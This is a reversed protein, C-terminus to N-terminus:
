ADRWLSAPWIAVHHQHSSRNTRKPWQYETCPSSCREWGGTIGANSQRDPQAVTRWEAVTPPRTKSGPSKGVSM